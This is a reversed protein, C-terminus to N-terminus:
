CRCSCWIVCWSWSMYESRSSGKRGSTNEVCIKVHGGLNSPTNSPPPTTRTPFSVPQSPRQANLQDLPKSSCSTTHNASDAATAMIYIIGNTHTHHIGSVERFRNGELHTAFRQARELNNAFLGGGGAADDGSAHEAESDTGNDEGGGGGGLAGASALANFRRTPKPRM